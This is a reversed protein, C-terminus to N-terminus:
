KCIHVRTEDDIAVQNFLEDQYWAYHLNYQASGIISPYMISAEHTHEIGDPILVRDSRHPRYLVCHGLEHHMLLEKQKDNQAANWFDPDLTVRRLTRSSECLGIVSAGWNNLSAIRIVLKPNDMDPVVNIGLAAADAVFKEM